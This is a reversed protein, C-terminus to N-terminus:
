FERCKECKKCLLTFKNKIKKVIIYKRKETPRDHPDNSARLRANVSSQIQYYIKIIECRHQSLYVM